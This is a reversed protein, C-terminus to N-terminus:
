EYLNKCSFVQQQLRQCFYRSVSRLFRNGFSELTDIWARTFHKIHSLEGTFYCSVVRKKRKDDSLKAKQMQTCLMVGSKRWQLPAFRDVKGEAALVMVM